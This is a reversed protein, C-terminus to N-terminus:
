SLFELERGVNSILTDKCHDIEHQFVVAYMDDESRDVDHLLLSPAGSVVLEKGTLKIKLFRDVEFRRMSGDANTLSLCGEVSKTKDGIGSYDCNVYYEYRRNRKVIFLKWPVGVQVAALGIGQNEDCVKEMKTCLRFLTMLNDLPTDQASRFLM